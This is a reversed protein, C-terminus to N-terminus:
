PGWVTRVSAVDGAESSRAVCGIRMAVEEQLLPELIHAVAVVLRAVKTEAADASDVVEAIGVVEAIDV